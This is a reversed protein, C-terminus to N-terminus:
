KFTGKQARIKMVAAVGIQVGADALKVARLTSRLGGTLDADLDPGCM